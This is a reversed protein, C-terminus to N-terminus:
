GEAVVYDRLTVIGGIEIVIVDGPKMNEPTGETGMWVVDGPYLTMYKTTERIYAATDHIMTGTSFQITVRGNLQPCRLDHRYVRHSM